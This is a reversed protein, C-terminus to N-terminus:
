GQSPAVPRSGHPPAAPPRRGAGQDRQLCRHAFLREVDPGVPIVGAVQQPGATGYVHLPVAKVIGGGADDTDPAAAVIPGGAPVTRFDLGEVSIRAEGGWPHTRWAHHTPIVKRPM